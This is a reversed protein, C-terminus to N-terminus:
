SSARAIKIKQQIKQIPRLEKDFTIVPIQPVEPKINKARLKQHSLFAVRDVFCDAHQNHEFTDISMSKVLDIAGDKEVNTLEINKLEPDFERLENYHYLFCIILKGGVSYIAVLRDKRNTYWYGIAARNTKELAYQLIKYQKDMAKDHTLYYYKEVVIPNITFVPIFEVIEITDLKDGQVTKLEDATFEVMKGEYEFGFTSEVPESKDQVVSDVKVKEVGKNMRKFKIEESAAVSYANMGINIKGFQVIFSYCVRGKM